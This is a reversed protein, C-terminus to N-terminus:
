VKKAKLKKKLKEMLDKAEERTLIIAVAGHHTDEYHGIHIEFKGKQYADTIEIKRMM